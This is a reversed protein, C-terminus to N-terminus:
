RLAKGSAIAIWSNCFSDPKCNSGSNTFTNTFFIIPLCPFTNYLHPYRNPPQIFGAGINIAYKTILFVFWMIKRFAGKWEHIRKIYKIHVLSFALRVFPESLLLLYEEQLELMLASPIM